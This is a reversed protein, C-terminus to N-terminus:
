VLPLRPVRCRYRWRLSTYNKDSKAVSLSCGCARWFPIRCLADISCHYSSCDPRLYSVEYLQHSCSWLNPIICHTPLLPTSRYFNFLVNEERTRGTHITNSVCDCPTPVVTKQLANPGSRIGSPLYHCRRRHYRRLLGSGYNFLPCAWFSDFCRCRYSCSRGACPAWLSGRPPPWFGNRISDM